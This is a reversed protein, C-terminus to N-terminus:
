KLESRRFGYRAPSTELQKAVDMALGDMLEITRVYLKCSDLKIRFDGATGDLNLLMFESSNPHIEIEVPVANILYLESSFIDAGLRTYFHAHKSMAFLAKRKIYGADDKNNQDVTKAPDSPFYGVIGLYNQKVDTAYSLEMDMYAKFAYLGNSNFIERGSMVVRLNRIWTAGIAQITGIKDTDAIMKWEGTTSKKELHMEAEVSIDRM